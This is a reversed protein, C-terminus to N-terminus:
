VMEIRRGMGVYHHRLSELQKQLLKIKAENELFRPIEHTGIYRLDKGAADASYVLAKWAYGREDKASSAMIVGKLNPEYPSNMRHAFAVRSRAIDVLCKQGETAERDGIRVRRKTEMRNCKVETERGDMSTTIHFAM